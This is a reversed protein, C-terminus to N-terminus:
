VGCGTVAVLTYATQLPPEPPVLLCPNTEGPLQESPRLEQPVATGWVGAGCLCVLSGCGLQSKVRVLPTISKDTMDYSTSANNKVMKGDEMHLGQGIRYIQWSFLTCQPWCNAEPVLLIDVVM